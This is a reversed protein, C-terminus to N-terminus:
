GQGSKMMWLREVKEEGKVMKLKLARPQMTYVLRYSLGTRCIDINNVWLM